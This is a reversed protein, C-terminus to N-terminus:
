ISVPAPSVLLNNIGVPQGQDYAVHIAKSPTLDYQECVAYYKSEYTTWAYDRPLNEIIYYGCSFVAENVNGQYHNFVTISDVSRRRSWRLGVRNWEMSYKSLSMAVAQICPHSLDLTIDRCVPIWAMDVYVDINKSQCEKLVNDWDPRVDTYQWNPLSVILPVRPQLDGPNTPTIGMYSYYKYDGPLVQINKGTKILLSDIFHTCGLITDVCAFKDLGTISNLKSSLFWEAATNEWHQKSVSKHSNQYWNQRISQLFNDNLQYLQQTPKM